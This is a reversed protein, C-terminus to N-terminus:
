VGRDHHPPQDRRYREADDAAPAARDPELELRPEEAGVDGVAGRPGVARRRRPRDQEV